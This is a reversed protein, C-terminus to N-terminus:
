NRNYATRAVGGMIGLGIPVVVSAVIIGAALRVLKDEKM